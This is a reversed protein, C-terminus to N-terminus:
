CKGCRRTLNCHFQLRERAGKYIAVSISNKSFKFDNFKYFWQLIYLHGYECVINIINIDCKIQHAISNLLELVQLHGNKSAYYICLNNIYLNNISESVWQILALYNHTSSYTIINTIDIKYKKKLEVLQKVFDQKMMIAYQNKSVTLVAIVFDLDLYYLFYIDIDEVNCITAM